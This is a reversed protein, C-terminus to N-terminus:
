EREHHPMDAPLAISFEVLGALKGDQYWQTQHILKRKGANEVTYANSTDSALLEHIKSQSTKNHCNFLSKGILASGGWKAFTTMSKDNMELIKGETDMVTIALGLEKYWNQM